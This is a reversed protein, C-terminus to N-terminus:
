STGHVSSGENYAMDTPLNAPPSLGGLKTKHQFNSLDRRGFEEWNTVRGDSSLRWVALKTLSTLDAFLDKLIM